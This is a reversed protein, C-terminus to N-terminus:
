LNPDQLFLRIWLRRIILIGNRSVSRTTKAGELYERERKTLGAKEYVKGPTRDTSGDIVVVAHHLRGAEIGERLM